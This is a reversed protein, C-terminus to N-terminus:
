RSGEKFPGRSAGQWQRNEKGKRWGFPSGFLASTLRCHCRPTCGDFGM